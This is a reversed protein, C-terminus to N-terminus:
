FLKRTTRTKGAKMRRRGADRVVPKVGYRKLEIEALTVGTSKLTGKDFVEPLRETINDPPKKNSPVAVNQEGM